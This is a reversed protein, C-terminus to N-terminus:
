SVFQICNEMNLRLGKICPTLCIKEVDRGAKDNAILMGYGVATSLQFM